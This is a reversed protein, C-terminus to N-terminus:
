VAARKLQHLRRCGERLDADTKAFCFRLLNEGTSGSYFAAGHVAAVGTMELLAMAKQKSNAGPLASADALTYYSGAPTIPALGVEVLTECLLKRKIAYEAALARYFSEDLEP